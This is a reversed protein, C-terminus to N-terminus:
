ESYHRLGIAAGYLATLFASLGLAIRAWQWNSWTALQTTLEADSMVGTLFNGNAAKFYLFFTALAAFAFFASLGLWLTGPYKRLRASFAAILAIVAAGIQWSGFFASLRAANNTYWVYFEDATLEMWFPVLTKQEGIMAGASIGLVAVALFIIWFNLKSLIDNRLM